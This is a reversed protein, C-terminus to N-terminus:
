EASMVLSVGFDWATSVGARGMVCFATALPDSVLGRDAIVTAMVRNTVGFGTRPDVIHSYRVGDVEIFQETDGSTSVACNALVRSEEEGPIRVPWGDAGPPADGVVIDGGAQVIASKVGYSGLIRVAEDCAYGKAIGGLDILVGDRSITVSRYKADLKVNQWGVLSRAQALEIAGPLRGTARANRWLKVVPGATVDFAGDTRVSIEQAMALVEFLERSVPQSGGFVLGRVESNPRYDSMIQELEAIRGYAGKAAREAKAADNAYFTLRFEGGMHVETFTFRELHVAGMMALALAIMVWSLKDFDVSCM